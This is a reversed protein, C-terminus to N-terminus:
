IFGSNRLDNGVINYNKEIWKLSYFKSVKNKLIEHMQVPTHTLGNYMEYKQFLRALIGKLTAEDAEGPGDVFNDFTTYKYTGSWMRGYYFVMVRPGKPHPQVFMYAGFKGIDQPMKDKLNKKTKSKKTTSKTKTM